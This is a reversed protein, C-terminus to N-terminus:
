WTTDPSTGELARLLPMNAVVTLPSRTWNPTSALPTVTLLALTVTGSTRAEFPMMWTMSLTSIGGTSMGVVACDVPM